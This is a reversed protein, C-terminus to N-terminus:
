RPVGQAALPVAIPTDGFMQSRKILNANLIVKDQEEGFTVKDTMHPYYGGNFDCNNCLFCDRKKNQLKLRYIHFNVDNWIELLTNKAVNGFNTKGYFDNCCLIADGTWNINLFRFPRTCHKNLPEVAAGRFDPINGSRNSFHNPGELESDKTTKRIGFKAIVQCAKKRPGINQYLSLKQDLGLEDVWKQLTAQRQKALRVGNEFIKDDESDDSSSYINIQMQNLGYDFLSKIDDKSKFYDGNTNMMQCAHPLEQRIYAIIEWLDKRRTPENYIYNEVRGKYKLQKLQQVINKIMDWSMYQDVRDFVSNPCFYCKRNCSSAIEIGINNFLAVQEGKSVDVLKPM